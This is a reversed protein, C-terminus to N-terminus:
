RLPKAEPAQSVEAPLPLEKAISGTGDFSKESVLAGDEKWWRWTGIQRGAEFEGITAKQGNGHSWTWAGHPVDDKYNGAAAVQGNEYFYSFMGSKKGHEYFGQQKIQGNDFWLTSPGHRVPEGQASFEALTITWFDDAAKQEERPGLFQEESLKLKRAKATKTAALMRGDLSKTTLSRGDIYTAVRKLEGRKDAEMVDGQRVGQEYTAQSFVIGNPLWVTTIGNRKGLTLSVQMCKRQASDAIVWEGEMQDDVFNAQSRFPAKFKNFPYHSLVPAEKPGCWRSWMGARKGMDFQGEALVNGKADFQKWPGHNVYNGTMDLVVHREVRVKGNPFNERVVELGGGAFAPTSEALQQFDDPSLGDGQPEAAKLGAVPFVVACVVAGLLSKLSLNFRMASFRRAMAFTIAAQM